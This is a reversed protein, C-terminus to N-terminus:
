KTPCAVLTEWRVEYQKTQTDKPSGTLDTMLLHAQLDRLGVM